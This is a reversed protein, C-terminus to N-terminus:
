VLAGSQLSPPPAAAQRAVSAEASALSRDLSRNAERQVIWARIAVVGCYGLAACGFVWLATEVWKSARLTVIPAGCYGARIPVIIIVAHDEERASLAFM